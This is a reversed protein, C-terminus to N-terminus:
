LVTSLWVQVSTLAFLIHSQRQLIGGHEFVFKPINEFNSIEYSQLQGM